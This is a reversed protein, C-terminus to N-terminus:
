FAIADVRRALGASTRTILPQAEDAEDGAAHPIRLAEQCLRETELAM